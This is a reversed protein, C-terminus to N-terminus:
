SVRVPVRTKAVLLEVFAPSVGLPDAVPLGRCAAVVSDTLRGPAVFLSAVAPREIGRESLAELAQTPSPSASSAFAPEVPVGHRRSLDRALCSVSALARPSSSGASVLLLGDVRGEAAAQTLDDIGAGAQTLRDALATLLLERSQRGGAGLAPAV